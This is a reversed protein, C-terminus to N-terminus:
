LLRFTLMQYQMGGYLLLKILRRNPMIVTMCDDLCRLELESGPWALVM